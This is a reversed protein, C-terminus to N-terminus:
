RKWADVEPPSSKHRLLLQKEGNGCTYIVNLHKQIGPYCPDGFEYTSAYISCSRKGHCRKIMLQLATASKCEIMPMGLNQYPCELSGGQTRGFIASYIAIVMNKKCSLRLKDDECAVKSKYENPRCKYWVLLYKATAPCPDVGFLRSRVLFRCSRRDQCEDLTKQLLACVHFLFSLVEADGRLIM